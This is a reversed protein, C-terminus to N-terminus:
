TILSKITLRNGKSMTIIETTMKLNKKMKLELSKGIKKSEM